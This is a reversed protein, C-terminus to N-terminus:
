RRSNLHEIGSASDKGENTLYNNRWISNRPLDGELARKPAVSTKVKKAKMPQVSDVKSVKSLKTPKAYLPTDGEDVETRVRQAQLKGEARLGQMDSLIQQVGFRTDAVVNQLFMSTEVALQAQTSAILLNPTNDVVTFGKLRM